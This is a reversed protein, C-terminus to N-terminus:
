AIAKRTLGCANSLSPNSCSQGGEFCLYKGPPNINALTPRDRVPLCPLDVLSSAVAPPVQLVPPLRVALPSTIRGSQQSSEPHHTNSITTHYCNDDNAEVSQPNPTVTSNRAPAQSPTPFPSDGVRMAAFFNCLDEDEQLADAYLLPM